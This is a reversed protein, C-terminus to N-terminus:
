RFTSEMINTKVIGLVFAIIGGGNVIQEILQKNSKPQQICPLLIYHTVNILAEPYQQSQQISKRHILGCPTWQVEVCPSEVLALPQTGIDHSQM